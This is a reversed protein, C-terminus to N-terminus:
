PHVYGTGTEVTFSRTGDGVVNIVQGISPRGLGDFSFATPIPSFTIGAAATVVFPSVGRPSALDGSCAAPPPVQTPSFKLTVSSATFTICVNRRKAIADKQAYRIAAQAEDYFGLAGFMGTNLRPLAVVALITVIILVVILEVLTFGRDKVAGRSMAWAPYPTTVPDNRDVVGRRM